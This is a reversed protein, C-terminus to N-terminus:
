AKSLLENTKNANPDDSPVQEIFSLMETPNKSLDMLETERTKAAASQKYAKPGILSLVVPLFVIGFFLGFIVVLLFIQM